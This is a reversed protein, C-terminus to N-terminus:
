RVNLATPYRKRRGSRLEADINKSELVAETVAAGRPTRVFSLRLMDFRMSLRRSIIIM